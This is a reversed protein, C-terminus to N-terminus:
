AFLNSNFWFDGSTGVLGAAPATTLGLANADLGLTEGAITDPAFRVGGTVSEAGNQFIVPGTGDRHGIAIFVPNVNIAIYLEDAAGTPPLVISAEAQNTLDKVIGRVIGGATMWVSFGDTGNALSAINGTSTAGWGFGNIRFTIPQIRNVNPLLILTIVADALVNGSVAGLATIAAPDIPLGQGRDELLIKRIAEPAVVKTQGFRIRENVRRGGWRRLRSPLFQTNRALAM